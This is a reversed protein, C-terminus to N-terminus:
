TLRTDYKVKRPFFYGSKVALRFSTSSGENKKKMESMVLEDDKLALIKLFFILTLFNERSPRHHGIVAM